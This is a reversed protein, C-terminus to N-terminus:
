KEVGSLLKSNRLPTNENCGGFLIHTKCNFIQLSNVYESGHLNVFANELTLLFASAHLVGPADCPASKILGMLDTDYGSFRQVTYCYDLDPIAQFGTAIAASANALTM